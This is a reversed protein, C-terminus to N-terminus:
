AHQPVMGYADIVEPLWDPQATAQAEVALIDNGERWLTLSAWVPKKTLRSALRAASTPAKRPAFTLHRDHEAQLKHRRITSAFKTRAWAELDSGSLLVEAPAFRRLILREAKRALELEYNGPQFVHKALELHGPTRARLGLAQWPIWGDPGHFALTRAMDTLINQSGGALRLVAAMRDGSSCLVAGLGSLGDEQWAFWRSEWGEPPQVPAELEWFDQGKHAKTVAALQKKLPVDAKLRISRIDLAAPEEGPLEFKAATAALSVLDTGSPLEVSLGNWAFTADTFNVGMSLNKQFPDPSVKEKM